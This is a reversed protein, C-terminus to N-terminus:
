NSSHVFLKPQTPLQPYTGGETLFRSSKLNVKPPQQHTQNQNQTNQTQVLPYLHRSSSSVTTTEPQAKDLAAMNKRKLNM